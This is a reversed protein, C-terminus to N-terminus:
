MALVKTPTIVGDLLEEFVIRSVVAIPSITEAVISGEVSRVLRGTNGEDAATRAVYASSAAGADSIM